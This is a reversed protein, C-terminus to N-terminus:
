AKMSAQMLQLKVCVCVCVCVKKRKLRAELPKKGYGLAVRPGDNPCGLSVMSAVIAIEGGEWFHANKIRARQQKFQSRWCLLCAKSWEVVKSMFGCMSIKERSAGNLVEDEGYAKISVKFM